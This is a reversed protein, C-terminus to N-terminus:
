QRRGVRAELAARATTRSSTSLRMMAGAATLPEIRLQQGPDLEAVDVGGIATSTVATAWRRPTPGGRVGVASQQAREVVDFRGPLVVLESVLM